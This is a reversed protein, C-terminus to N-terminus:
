SNMESASGVENESNIDLLGVSNDNEALSPNVPDWHISKNHRSPIATDHKPTAQSEIHSLMVKPERHIKYKEKYWTLSLM